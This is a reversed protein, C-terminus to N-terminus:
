TIGPYSPAYIKPKTKIVNDKNSLAFYRFSDAGHSAWDHLPNNKFVKRKDDWEKKYNELCRILQSCADKDIRVRPFLRRAEMIGDNVTYENKILKVRPYKQAFRDFVTIGSVLFSHSRQKSDHPLYIFGMKAKKEIFWDDIISFYFDLTKGSEEVYNVFNFFQGDNQKFSVTFSDNVGLDLYLDVPVDRNFPLSTIREEERANEIEKAYYSGIAGVDFSVYYEQQIMEESM